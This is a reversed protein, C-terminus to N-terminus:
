TASIVEGDNWEPDGALLERFSRFWANQQPSDSNRRYTERDKYVAATIYEDSGSDLRYLYAAIFGEPPNDTLQKSLELVKAESGPKARFRTVTGYM